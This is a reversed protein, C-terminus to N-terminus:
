GGARTRGTGMGQKPLPEYCWPVNKVSSDFCCGNEFCQDSTIGPFGCNKRNEPDLRSCRCAAAPPRCDAGSPSCSEVSGGYSTNGCPVCWPKDPWSGRLFQRAAPLLIQRIYLPPHQHLGPCHHPQTAKGSMAKAGRRWRIGAAPFPSAVVGVQLGLRLLGKYSGAGCGSVQTVIVGWACLM